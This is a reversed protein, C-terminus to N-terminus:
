LCELQKRREGIAFFITSDEKKINQQSYM